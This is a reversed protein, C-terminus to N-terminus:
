NEPLHIRVKVGREDIATSVNPNVEDEDATLMEKMKRKADEKNMDQVMSTSIFGPSNNISSPAELGELLADADLKQTTVGQQKAKRVQQGYWNEQRTQAQVLVGDIFKSLKETLLVKIDDLSSFLDGNVRNSDVIKQSPGTGIAFKWSIKKGDLTQVTVEEVVMAPIVTQDKNSLIYVIQGISFLKNDSAM